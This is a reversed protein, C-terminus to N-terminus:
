QISMVGVQEVKIPIDMGTGSHVAFVRVIREKFVDPGSGGRHMWDREADEPARARWGDGIQFYVCPLHCLPLGDCWVGVCVHIADQRVRDHEGVHFSWRWSSAGM